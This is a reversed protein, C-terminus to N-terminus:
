NPTPAAPLSKLYLYLAALETDTMRQAYATMLSMPPLLQTGDPRTGTRLVTVFQEESWSGLNGAPTLNAAPPWSPDGGAVPGGAFTASHCGTCVGALHAGFE